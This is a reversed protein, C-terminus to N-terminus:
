IYFMTDKLDDHITVDAQRAPGESGSESSVVTIREDFVGSLWRRARDCVLDAYYAPPCLSVAKTARGFMYCLAHTLAELTDAAKQEATQKDMKLTAPSVAAARRRFIEDHVVVYHCPKATGQLASHAQLFFDWIRTETVGRDVVTGPNPSGGKEADEDKTPYFRTHHRKGCIVITIYPLGKKTDTAPYLDQCAQQILPLEASRVLDYMTEGVGDRYVLIETPLKNQNHKQWLRLRSKVMDKLGEIMEQRGKQIRIDAPWQSLFKDTSAVISSVSPASERSGPSPHTVDLGILMTQGENVFGLDAPQLLQNQGGLKLNFKLAVNALYQSNDSGDLAKAFKKGDAIVGITHIGYKIDCLRKVANYIASKNNPLVVLLLKIKPQANAARSIVKDLEPEPDQVNNIPAQLGAVPKQVKIGCADLMDYFQDVCGKVESMERFKGGQHQTRVWLYSWKLNNQIVGKSFEVGKMNWSGYSPDAKSTGAYKPNAPSLVRGNVTLMKPNLQIGFNNLLQESNRKLLGIGNSVISSANSPAPRVANRIMTATDDPSLPRNYDQNSKVECLESPMYIPDKRTGTNILLSNVNRGYQQKFYEKVTVYKGDKNFSVDSTTAGWKVGRPPYKSGKGDFPTVLGQIRKLRRNLHTVHVYLGSLVRNAEEPRMEQGRLEALLQSLPQVRWAVVHQVQVNLLIRGTAARVSMFFGRFAELGSSLMWQEVLDSGAGQRNTPFYKNRSSRNSKTLVNDNSRMSYGLIINTAQIIQDKTVDNELTLDASALYSLLSGFSFEGTFEVKARHKPSKSNPGADKESYYVVSYEKNTFGLPQAAILTHKRDSAVPINQPLEKLLLQVLREVKKGAPAVESGEAPFIHIDYRFFMKDRSPVLEFYNAYLKVPKGKTGYAPRTPAQRTLSLRSLMTASNVIMSENELKTVSSAPENVTGDQRHCILRPQSFWSALLKCSIHQSRGAEDVNLLVVESDM